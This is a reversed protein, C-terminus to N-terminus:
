HTPDPSKHTPTKQSTKTGAGHWVVSYFMGVRLFLRPEAWVMEGVLLVAREIIWDLPKHNLSKNVHTSDKSTLTCRYMCVHYVQVIGAFLNRHREVRSLLCRDGLSEIGSRVRLELGGSGVGHISLYLIHIYIYTWVCVYMWICICTCICMCVYVYVYVYVYM